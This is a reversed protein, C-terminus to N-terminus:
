TVNGDAEAKPTTSRQAAGSMSSTFSHILAMEGEIGLKQGRVGGIAKKTNGPPFGKSPKEVRDIGSHSGGICTSSGPTSAKTHAPSTPSVANRRRVTM